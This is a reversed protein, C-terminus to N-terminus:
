SVLVVADYAGRLEKLTVDEGVSVNGIFNLRGSKAVATFTNIVNKVDPHDPAVGYRCLIAKILNIPPFSCKLYILHLCDFRVLGFPVPLKEYM